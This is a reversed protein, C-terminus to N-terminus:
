TMRSERHSSLYFLGGLAGALLITGLAMLATRRWAKRIPRTDLNLSGMWQRVQEPSLDSTTKFGAENLERVYQGIREVPDAVKKKLLYKKLLLAIAAPGEGRRTPDKDLLTDVLRVLTRDIGPRLNSLSPHPDSVIQLFLDPKNEEMFPPTGSLLYFFVAGLSFLDSQVTIPKLGRVQEPSMFRPSGLIEGTTTVAHDKLHCIGFDALKLYGKQSLMLNEPKLDRHVIGWESAAALGELIQVMMACAVIPNMPEGQLQYMNVVHPSHLRSVVKAEKFFRDLVIGHHALDQHIVKVAVLRSLVPDRALFVASMAGQGLKHLVQYRGFQSRTM